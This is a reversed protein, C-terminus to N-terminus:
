IHNYQELSAVQISSPGPGWKSGFCVAICLPPLAHAGAANIEM